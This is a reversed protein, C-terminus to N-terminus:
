RRSHRAAVDIVSKSVRPLLDKISKELMRLEMYRRPLLERNGV